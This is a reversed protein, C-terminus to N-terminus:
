KFVVKTVDIQNSFPCKLYYAARQFRNLYGILLDYTLDGKGQAFVWGALLDSAKVALLTFVLYLLPLLHAGWM